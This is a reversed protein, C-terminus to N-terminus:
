NVLEAHIEPHRTADSREFVTKNRLVLKKEVMEDFTEVYQKKNVRKDFSNNCSKANQVDVGLQSRWNQKAGSTGKKSEPVGALEADSLFNAWRTGPYRQVHGFYCFRRKLIIESLMTTGLKKLIDANYNHEEKKV